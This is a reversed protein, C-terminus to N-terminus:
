QLKREETKKIDSMTRINRFTLIGIGALTAALAMKLAGGGTLWVGLSALVSSLLVAGGGCRVIVVPAAILTAFIAGQNSDKM